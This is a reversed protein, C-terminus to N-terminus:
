YIYISNMEWKGWSQVGNCLSFWIIASQWACSFGVIARRLRGLVIIENRFVVLTKHLSQFCQYAVFLNKYLSLPVIHFLHTTM